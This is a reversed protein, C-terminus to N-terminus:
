YLKTGFVVNDILMNGVRVPVGRRQKKERTSRRLNNVEKKDETQKIKIETIHNSNKYRQKRNSTKHLKLINVIPTKIETFLKEIEKPTVKFWESLKKFYAKQKTTSFVWM